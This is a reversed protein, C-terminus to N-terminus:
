GSFVRWYIRDLARLLDVEWALLPQKTLESWSRIETFTLMGEGSRLELFWEWLYQLEEPLEPQDELEKPKRGLTKWVQIL